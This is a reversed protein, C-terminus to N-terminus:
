LYIMKKKGAISHTVPLFTWLGFYELIPSFIWLQCGMSGLGEGSLLQSTMFTVYELMTLSFSSSHFALLYYM